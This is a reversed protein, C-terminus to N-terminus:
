ASPVAAAADREMRQAASVLREAAAIAIRIGVVADAPQGLELLQARARDIATHIEFSLRTINDLSAQVRMLGDIWQGLREAEPETLEVVSERWGIVGAQAAERLVKRVARDRPVDRAFIHCAEALEWTRSESPM